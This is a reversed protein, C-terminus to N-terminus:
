TDKPSFGISSSGIYIGPRVIRIASYSGGQSIDLRHFCGCDLNMKLRVAFEFVWSYHQKISVSLDMSGDVSHGCSLSPWEEPYFCLNISELGSKRFLLLLGSKRFLLLLGSKRFLLLLGSKRFLLLLWAYVVARSCRVRIAFKASFADLKGVMLTTLAM